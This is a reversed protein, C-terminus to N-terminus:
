GGIGMAKMFAADHIAQEAAAMEVTVQGASAAKHAAILADLEAPSGVMPFKLQRGCTGCTAVVERNKDLSMAHPTDARCGACHITKTPAAVAGGKQEPM